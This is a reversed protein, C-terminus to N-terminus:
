GQVPETQPEEEVVDVPGGGANETEQEKLATWLQRATVMREDDSSIGDSQMAQVIQIVADTTHANDLADMYDVDQVPPVPETQAQAPEVPQGTTAPRAVPPPTGGNVPNGEEDVVAGLEEPTYQVGMLVDQCADRAVETTARAKLMAAPYKEWNDKGSLLGARRARELTWTVSYTFEPDDNRIIEATAHKDDGTVRFKHGARRVLASILAASASPKGEIVHISNIAQVTPIGLSEGLEVALLVNGPQKKYQPPLMGATALAQAYQQKEALTPQNRLEIESM